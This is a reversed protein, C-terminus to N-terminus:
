FHFYYYYYYYYIVFDNRVTQTASLAMEDSIYNIRHDNIHRWHNGQIDFDSRIVATYHGGTAKKGDHLVLARLRYSITVDEEADSSEMHHQALFSSSITFQLPYDLPHHIKVPIM